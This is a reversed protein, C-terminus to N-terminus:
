SFDKTDIIITVPGDGTLEVKMDGGFVGPFIQPAAHEGCLRNATEQMTRLFDHYMIEAERYPMADTFDPRRSRLNASLTFNSVVLIDAGVDLSSLNLKGNEDQFIRLKLIKDILLAAEKKTDERCFGLLVCMGKKCDSILRGECLLRAKETIQLVAKM